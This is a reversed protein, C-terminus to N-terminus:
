ASGACLWRVPKMILPIVHIATINQAEQHGPWGRAATEDERGQDPQAGPADDHHDVRDEGVDGVHVLELRALAALPDEAAQDRQRALEAGRQRDERDGVHQAQRAVHRRDLLDDVARRLQDVLWGCKM